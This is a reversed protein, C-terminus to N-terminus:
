VPVIRRGAGDRPWDRAPGSLDLAVENRQQQMSETFTTYADPHGEAMAYAMDRDAAAATYGEVTAWAIDQDALGSPKTVAVLRQLTAMEKNLLTIRDTLQELEKRISEVRQPGYEEVARILNFDHGFSQPKAAIPSPTAYEDTHMHTSTIPSTKPSLRKNLSIWGLNRDVGAM